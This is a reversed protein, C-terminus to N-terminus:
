TRLLHLFIQYYESSCDFCLSFRNVIIIVRGGFLYNIARDPRETAIIQPLAINGNDQILQELQGSSIIYDIKLNNIRYKVEAILDSNAINKIYCVACSTQSMEGIELSEIILNENNIYRRILSTNTRLNETFAVQEGRVVMENEPRDLSRKEFGKLSIDFGVDLSDIFLACNGSNIGSVLQDFNSTKRISNQPILCSFIYETIDFRKVKRVTINNTVVESVVRNQNGDFSNATNKLMLPKIIYDNMADSDVMGDIYMIFAKYQKNRANLIFERIEVDSNILSNYRVKMYELNLDLMTYVTNKSSASSDVSQNDLNLNSVNSEVKENNVIPNTSNELSFNYSPTLTESFTNHFWSLIVEKFENKKM